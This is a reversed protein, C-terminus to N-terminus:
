AAQTLSVSSAITGMSQEDIPYDLTNSVTVELLAPAGPTAPITAAGDTWRWPTSRDGEVDWWGRSLLPHDLPIVDVEAGQKLTLGSVMVGLRRRDEVWPRLSSPRTARSALQIPAKTAPLMFVYLGGQRSLPLITRGGIVVHLAPDDITRIAPPLGLGLDISRQALRHWIPEVLSPADAFPRCSQAVRRSQDNTLDPHLILAASGNEFMGRNGTDLYSEAPLNEALLIDHTELEVHYYTVTRCASVTQISAGNVLLRAPVLVGDLLLAHDPSVYLDRHPMGDGIANAQILIPQAREPAPHRSFDLTRCGIWKVPRATGDATLVYDGGVLREVAVEGRDTLIATGPCYCPAGGNAEDAGGRGFAEAGISLTVMDFESGLGASGDDQGAATAVPIFSGGSAADLYRSVSVAGAGSITTANSGAIQYTGYETTIVEDAQYGYRGDDAVTGTYASGDAYTFTFDFLDAAQSAESAGGEGFSKTGQNGTITGAESGLGATGNVSGADPVFPLGTTADLYSDVTVSGASRFTTDVDSGTITYVGGAAEIRQGVRYGFSGDDAVTGRYNSGDPYDFRFAYVAVASGAELAGAQGFAYAIGGVTITDQETGLGGGGDATGAATLDPTVGLNSLADRYLAVSVTGSAAATPGAAGTIAYQGGTGAIVHGVAYGLSGDDAVTGSYTSGDTYTFQFRFAAISVRAELAGGQGFSKTGAAGTITGSESGLGGTGLVAAAGIAAPTGDPLYATGTSVDTYTGVSVTGSALDTTGASGTILYSGNPTAITQGVTYGLRGDDAVSGLYVSGDAYIFSFTFQAIGQRAEEAGGDGFFLTGHNGGISDRESGLGASGASSGAVFLDPKSVQGTTVDFYSTVSVAGPALDTAGITGTISYSGGSGAISQGVAYGLSGDDAVTGAYRSGDAYAFTFSFLTTGGGADADAAQLARIEAASLPPFSPSPYPPIAPTEHAFYNRPEYLGAHGFNRYVGAHTYDMETGLGQYGALEGLSYLVPTYLPSPDKTDPYNDSFVDYYLTTYVKGPTLTTAGEDGTILYAGYATSISQAVSYHYRGDDAVKGLYYSGDKYDFRFDYLTTADQRAEYLGGAGFKQMGGDGTTSDIESGLDASGAANGSAYDFPTFFARSSVDYYSSVRVTGAADATVGNAGYIHYYGNGTMITQGAPYTGSPDSVTGYYFSGDTYQYYFGFSTYPAQKAELSGNDGFDVAGAAGVITDHEFGLGNDGDYLGLSTAEPTYLQNSYNDYYGTVSTAGATESTFGASAYIHYEGYPSPVTEGLHYGYGGDDSVTGYYYSGDSYDFSFYYLTNPAQRAEYIGADGFPLEGTPGRAYDIEFGLGNDGSAKGEAFLVPVYSANSTIDDYGQIHVTGGPQASYGIRARIDYTGSATPFVQGAAYGYGGDDSVTGHYSSGDDYIFDFSYLANGGQLAELGGHLGFQIEGGPGKTFDDESGLGAAGDSKGQGTLVPTYSTRTSVDYYSSATVTGAALATSGSKGYVYYYGLTSSIKEGVYTGFNGNDAVQGEYHSGDAYHYTFDYLTSGSQRAEFEGGQGFAQNGNAGTTFDYESGLGNAGSLQGKSYHYPTYTGSSSADSYQVIKVSGAADQTASGLSTITYSGGEATIKQGYYYGYRGDDVVSGYYYSGDAYTFRFGLLANGYLRAELAGGGGFAKHGNNDVFDHESGLGSAGSAIGQSAYYPRGGAGSEVDTYSTVFVTGIAQHYSATVPTAGTISYSGHATAITQGVAYGYKGDDAVTGSYSSGDAFTFTFTFQTEAALPAAYYGGEGFTITGNPGVVGDTETGLGRGGGSNAANVSTYTKATSADSYTTTRVAGASKFLGPDVSGTHLTLAYVGYVTYIKQGSFNGYSGDDFVTGAYSSGDSYTFTFDYLTLPGGGGTSTVAAKYQGGNGFVFSGHATAISDYEDGLGGGQTEGETFLLPAYDADTAADHYISVSVTGAALSVAGIASDISYAGYPTEITKGVAYGFTGDDVVTGAYSSGDKYHFTFRYQTSM